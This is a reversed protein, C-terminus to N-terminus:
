VTVGKSRLWDAGVTVRLTSPTYLTKRFGCGNSFNTKLYPLGVLQPAADGPTVDIPTGSGMGACHRSRGIAHVKRADGLATRVISHITNKM